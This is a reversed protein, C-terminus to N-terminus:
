LLYLVSCEAVTGEESLPYEGVAAGCSITSIRRVIMNYFPPPPPSHFHTWLYNRLDILKSFMSIMIANGYMGSYQIARHAAAGYLLLLDGWPKPMYCSYQVADIRFSFDSPQSCFLTTPVFINFQKWPPTPGNGADARQQRKEAPRIHNISFLLYM